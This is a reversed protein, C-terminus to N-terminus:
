KLRGIIEDHGIDDAGTKLTDIWEDLDRVDFREDGNDFVVPAVPCEIKFRKVPRGCHDAGEAPTLMRKEVVTINLTARGPM